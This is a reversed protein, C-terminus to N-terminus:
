FCWESCNPKNTSNKRVYLFYAKNSLELCRQANLLRDGNTDEIGEMAAQIQHEESRWDLRKREWFDEPIKGDLKDSYAQDMRRRVIALRQELRQRQASCENRM